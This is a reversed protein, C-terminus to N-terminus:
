SGGNVDLLGLGVDPYEENVLEGKLTVELTMSGVVVERDLTIRSGLELRVDEVTVVLLAPDDDTKCDVMVVIGVSESGVENEGLERDENFLRELFAGPSVEVLEESEVSEEDERM